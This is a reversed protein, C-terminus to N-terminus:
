TTSANSISGFSHWRSSSRTIIMINYIYLIYASNYQKSYYRISLLYYYYVSYIIYIILIIRQESNYILLVCLEQLLARREYLGHSSEAPPRRYPPGYLPPGFQCLRCFVTCFRLFVSYHKQHSYVRMFFVRTKAPGVLFM